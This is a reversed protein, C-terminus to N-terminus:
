VVFPILARREAPYDPFKDRYWKHHSLARPGLNAASYLAFALGPLSWTAIAWGTWELIEGLYNPCTVYRYLGGHPIKYGSEGPKRLNMLVWDAHQNIAFGVAFLLVGGLFRPDTLWADPYSGVESVQRGNIYANLLNFVVATGVISIPTTKGDSRIRFPFVFTRNLYHVQWLAMLVLPAPELAHAGLAYVALWGLSAPLEMLVWALRQGIGPGWGGRGHRGYPATVFFLSVFTLGALVLQAYTAYAHISAEPM